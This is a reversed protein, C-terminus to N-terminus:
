SKPKDDGNGKLCNGIIDLSHAANEAQLEAAADAGFIGLEHGLEHLFIMARVRSPEYLDIKKGNLSIKGDAAYVFAGDTNIFVSDPGNTQAGVGGGGHLKLFRYDTKLMAELPKPAPAGHAAFYAQCDKRGLASVAERWGDAFVRQYEQPTNKPLAPPPPPKAAKFSAGLAATVGAAQSEFSQAHAPAAAGLGAALLATFLKM